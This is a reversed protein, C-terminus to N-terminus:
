LPHHRDQCVKFLQLLHSELDKMNEKTSMQLQHSVKESALLQLSKLRKTKKWPSLHYLVLVLFHLRPITRKHLYSPWLQLIKLNQFGVHLCVQKVNRRRKLRRFDKWKNKNPKWNGRLRKLQRLRSKLLKRLNSTRHLLVSKPRNKSNMSKKQKILRTKRTRKWETFDLPQQM